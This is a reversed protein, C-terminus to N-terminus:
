AGGGGGSTGRTRAEKWNVLREWWPRKPPAVISGESRGEPNGAEIFRKAVQGGPV